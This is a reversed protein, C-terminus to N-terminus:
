ELLLEDENSRNGGLDDFDFKLTFRLTNDLPNRESSTPVLYSFDLGFVNYKVGLGATFYKRNGKTPAEYFYGMRLFFLDNYGYEAGVSITFEKLEEKFGGEADGFSTFLAGIPSQEKYDAVGNNNEDFEADITGDNDKDTDIPSPVLLKNIDFYIGVKHLENPNMDFGVGIGLNAPIFDQNIADNSYSIKSGINSLTTGFRITGDLDKKGISLPKQYFFSIDAGVANGATIENGNVSQGAALNSYIYRLGLGLSFNESLRRAYAVDIAFERPKFETIFDGQINTFTINGLNFYKLSMSISQLEGIKYYAALHALFIDSIGLSRLWPSYSFSLGLDKESFPIKAANYFTANADASLGIGVDGMAGSRADPTIRLFPVATSVTSLRGIEENNNQANLQSISISLICLIGIIIKRVPTIM